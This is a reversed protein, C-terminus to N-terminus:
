LNRATTCVDAWRSLARELREYIQKEKSGDIKAVANQVAELATAGLVVFRVMGKEYATDLGTRVPRGWVYEGFHGPHVDCSWPKANDFPSQGLGKILWGRKGVEAIAAELPSM